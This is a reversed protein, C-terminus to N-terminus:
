KRPADFLPQSSPGVNKYDEWGCIGFQPSPCIFVRSYGPKPAEAYYPSGACGGLLLAIWLYRM